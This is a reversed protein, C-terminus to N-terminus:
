FFEVLRPTTFVGYVFDENTVPDTYQVTAEAFQFLSTLFLALGAYLSCETGLISNHVRRRTFIPGLAQTHLANQGM